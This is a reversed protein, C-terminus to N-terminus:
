RKIKTRRTKNAMTIGYNSYLINFYKDEPVWTYTEGKTRFEARIACNVEHSYMTQWPAAATKAERADWIETTNTDIRQWVWFFLDNLFAKGFKEPWHHVMAHLDTLFVRFSIVAMPGIDYEVNEDISVNSKWAMYHKM